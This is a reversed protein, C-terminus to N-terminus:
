ISKLTKTKNIGSAEFRQHFPFDLSQTPYYSVCKCLNFLLIIFFKYENTM